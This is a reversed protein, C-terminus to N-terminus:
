KAAARLRESRQVAKESPGVRVVGDRPTTFRSLKFRRNRRNRRRQDQAYRAYGQRQWDSVRGRYGGGIPVAGPRNALAWQMTSLDDICSADREERLDPDITFGKAM